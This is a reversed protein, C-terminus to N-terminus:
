KAKSVDGSLTSAVLSLKNLTLLNPPGKRDQLLDWNSLMLPKGVSTTTPKVLVSNGVLTNDTNNQM